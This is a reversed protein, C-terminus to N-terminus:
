REALTGGGGRSLRKAEGRRGGRATSREVEAIVSVRHGARQRLDRLRSASGGEAHGPDARVRCREERQARDQARGVRGDRIWTGHWMRRHRDLRWRVARELRCRDWGR